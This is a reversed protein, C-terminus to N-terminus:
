DLLPIFCFVNLVLPLSESPGCVIAQFFDPEGDVCLRFLGLFRSWPIQRAKVNGSLGLVVGTM